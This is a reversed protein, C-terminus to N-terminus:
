DHHNHVGGASVNGKGQKRRCRENTEGEQRGSRHRGGPKDLTMKIKTLIFKKDRDYMHVLIKELNRDKAEKCHKLIQRGEGTIEVITVREDKPDRKRGIAGQKELRRVLGSLNSVAVLMIRSVNSLSDRGDASSDLVRLVNYQPFTLGYERFVAAQERKLYEGMRVFGLLIRENLTLRGLGDKNLSGGRGEM